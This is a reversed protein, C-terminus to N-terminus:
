GTFPITMGVKMGSLPQARSRKLIGFSEFFAFLEIGM